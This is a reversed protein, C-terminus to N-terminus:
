SNDNWAPSTLQSPRTYAPAPAATFEQTSLGPQTRPCCKVNRRRLRRRKGEGRRKWSTQQAKHPPRGPEQLEKNEIRKLRHM